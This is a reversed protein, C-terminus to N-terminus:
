VNNIIFVIYKHIGWEEWSHEAKLNIRAFNPGTAFDSNIVKSLTTKVNPCSEEGVKFLFAFDAWKLISPTFGSYFSIIFRGM